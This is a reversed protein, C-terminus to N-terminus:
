IWAICSSSWKNASRISRICHACPMRPFARKSRPFHHIAIEDFQGRLDDGGVEGPVDDRNGLKRRQDASDVLGELRRSLGLPLLFGGALRQLRRHRDLLRNLGVMDDAELVALLQLHELPMQFSGIVQRRVLIPRFPSQRRIVRHDSRVIGLLTGIQRQFQSQSSPCSSRSLQTSDPNGLDSLRVTVM